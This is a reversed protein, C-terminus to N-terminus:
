SRSNKKDNNRYRKVSFGKIEDAIEKKLHHKSIKRINKSKLDIKEGAITKDYYYNQVGSQLEFGPLRMIKINGKEVQKFRKVDKLYVHTLAVARYSKTARDYYVAYSHVGEPENSKFLYKNKIKAIRM